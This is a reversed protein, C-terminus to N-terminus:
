AAGIPRSSRRQRPVADVLKRLNPLSDDWHQLMQLVSETGTAFVRGDIALGAFSPAGAVSFTGLAFDALDPKATM